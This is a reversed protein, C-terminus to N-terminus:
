RHPPQAPNRTPVLMRHSGVVLAAALSIELVLRPMDFQGQSGVNAGSVFFLLLMISPLSAKLALLLLIYGASRRLM